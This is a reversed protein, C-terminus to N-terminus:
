SKILQCFKKIGTKIQNRTATAYSLRLTNPYPKKAYFIYGPIFAVNQKLAKLYLQQADLHSPLTLWIFLGGQPTTWSLNPPAHKKLAALMLDRSTQYFRSITQPQTKAASSKLYEVLIYQSLLNPCLDMGQRALTAKAIISKDAVIYGIRLGPAVEKSFTSTYIVDGQHNGAALPQPAKQTFSIAWYPNDEIIITKTKKAWAILQKRRDDSLTLGTPNQFTPITYLLKVPKKLQELQDVILGNQDLPVTLYDAQYANFAYTAVFYTPNEVIVNDQPNIFIKALLDLAQQSGATILINDATVQKQWQHTLRRAIARRLEIIGEAPGYQFPEVSYKKLVLRTVQRLTALPFTQPNPIGGAFSILGPKQALALTDRVSPDTIKTLIKSYNIKM